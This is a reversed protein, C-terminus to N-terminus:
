QDRNSCSDRKRELAQLQAQLSKITIMHVEETQSFLARDAEREHYEIATTLQQILHDTNKKM